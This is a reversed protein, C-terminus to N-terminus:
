ICPCPAPHALCVSDMLPFKWMVHRYPLRNSTAPLLFLRHSKPSVAKGLLKGGTVFKVSELQRLLSFYDYKYPQSAVKNLFGTLKEDWTDDLADGFDTQANVPSM